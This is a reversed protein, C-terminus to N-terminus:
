SEYRGEIIEITACPYLADPSDCYLGEPSHCNSACEECQVKGHSTPIPKHLEKLRRILEDM